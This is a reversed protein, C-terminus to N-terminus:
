QTTSGATRGSVTLGAHYFLITGEEDDHQERDGYPHAPPAHEPERPEGGPRHRGHDRTHNPSRAPQRARLRSEPVAFVPSAASVAATLPRKM